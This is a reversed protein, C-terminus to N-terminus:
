PPLGDAHRPALRPIRPLNILQHLFGIGAIEIESGVCGLDPHTSAVRDAHNLLVLVADHVEVVFIDTGIM